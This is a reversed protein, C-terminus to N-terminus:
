NKRFALTKQIDNHESFTIEYDGPAIGLSAMTEHLIQDDLDVRSILVVGDKKLLNFINRISQIRADPTLYQFVNNVTIIDQSNSDIGSMNPLMGEILRINAAETLLPFTPKIRTAESKVKAFESRGFGILVTNQYNRAAELLFVGRGYGIDLINVGNKTESLKEEIIQKLRKGKFTPLSENYGLVQSGDDKTITNLGRSIEYPLRGKEEIRRILDEHSATTANFLITNKEEGM